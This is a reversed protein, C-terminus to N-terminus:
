CYAGRPHFVRYIKDRGFFCVSFGEGKYNFVIHPVHNRSWRFVPKIKVDVLMDFLPKLPKPIPINDHSIRYAEPIKM